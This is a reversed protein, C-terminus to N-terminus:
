FFLKVLFDVFEWQMILKNAVLICAGIILCWKGMRNMNYLLQSSDCIESYSRTSFLSYILTGILVGFSIFILGVLVKYFILLFLVFLIFLIIRM